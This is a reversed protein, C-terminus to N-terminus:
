GDHRWKLRSLIQENDEQTTQNLYDSIRMKYNIPISKEKFAIGLAILDKRGEIMEVRLLDGSITFTEAPNDFNVNLVSDEIEISKSSEMVIVKAGFFSIDRILCNRPVGKLSIVGERLISLKRMVEPTLTIRESRRKSFNENVSMFRGLIDILADPPRQIYQFTFIAVDNSNGYPAFGVSKMNVFFVLTESNESTKFCFRISATNKAIQLKEILGAKINAVIKATEFSSSYLVCPWLDGMCKIYIQQACLGTAQIAEKSFTVFSTKYQEYFANLQHSNLISM